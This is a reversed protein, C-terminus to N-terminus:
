AEDNTPAADAAGAIASAGNAAATERTLFSGLEQITSMLPAPFVVTILIRSLMIEAVRPLAIIHPTSDRAILASTNSVIARGAYATLRLQSPYLFLDAETITPQASGCVSRGLAVLQLTM